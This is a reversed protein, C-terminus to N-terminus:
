VHARGIQATMTVGTPSQARPQLFLATPSRGLAEALAEIVMGESDLPVGIVDAGLQELLDLLPPFTPHEVVVRDGLDVVLQAVRDLADMAGDVVTISDPPFPWRARLADELEPLVADDLYSSTLSQSSVRALAPGLEPLLRPDPTGTSLDLRFHGGSGPGAPAPLNIAYNPTSSGGGTPTDGSSAGGAIGVTSPFLLGTANGISPDALFDGGWQIGLDRKGVLDLGVAAPIAGIGLQLTAGDEILTAVQDGIAQQERTPQACPVTHLPRDTEVWADIADLPITSALDSSCM